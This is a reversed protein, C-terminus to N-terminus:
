LPDCLLVEPSGSLQQWSGPIINPSENVGDDTAFPFPNVAIDVRNGQEDTVEVMELSDTAYAWRWDFTVIYNVAGGRMHFFDQMRVNVTAGDYDFTAFNIYTFRYTNGSEDHATGKIWDSLTIRQHGNRLIRQTALKLRDSGLDDPNINVGEPIHPCASVPLWPITANRLHVILRSGTASPAASVPAAGVFLAVAFLLHVVLKRSTSM